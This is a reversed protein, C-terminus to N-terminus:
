FFFSGLSFKVALDVIFRAGPFLNTLIKMDTDVKRATFHFLAGEPYEHSLKMVSFHFTSLFCFVGESINFFM